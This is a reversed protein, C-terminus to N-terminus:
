AAPYGALQYIPLLGSTSQYQAVVCYHADISAFLYSAYGVRALDTVDRYRVFLANLQPEINQLLQDWAYDVITEGLVEELLGSDQLAVAFVFHTNAM